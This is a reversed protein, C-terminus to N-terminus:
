SGIITGDEALSSLFDGPFENKLMRRAINKTLPLWKIIEREEDPEDPASVLEGSKLVAHAIRLRIPQLYKEAVHSVKKDLIEPPFTNELIFDDIEWPPPYLAKLWSEGDERTAPMREIVRTAGSGLRRRRSYIGDTIKYFCLFQYRMSTSNMAERYLSAYAKYDESPALNAPIALAVVNPTSVIRTHTAGTRIEVADVQRIEVPTDLQASVDSLAPAVIRIAKFIADSFKSAWVTCQFKALFGENNPFGEFQFRGDPTNAIIDFRDFQVLTERRIAPPAIALYSDGRLQQQQVHQGESVLPIGPRGLTLTIGYNGPLGDPGGRNRPDNADAFRPVTVFYQPIGPIGRPYLVTQPPAQQIPKGRHCKKFKKGSGCPCPDNPGVKRKTPM